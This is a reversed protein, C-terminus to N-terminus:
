NIPPVEKGIFSTVQNTLTHITEIDTQQEKLADIAKVIEGDTKLLAELGKGDKLAIEEIRKNIDAVTSQSLEMEKRLQSIVAPGTERELEAIRHAAKSLTDVLRQCEDELQTFDYVQRTNRVRENEFVLSHVYRAFDSGESIRSDLEGQAIYVVESKDFVESSLVPKDFVDGSLTTFGTEFQPKASAIRKVFSNADSSTARIQFCNALLDTLATKGSGKGGTIVILGPNMPIKTATITLGSITVAEIRFETFTFTSRTMTPAQQAVLVRDDPECLLQKLGEFTPNAKVWTYRPDCAAADATCQHGKEGRKACPNGLEILTHADSGWIAPKLSGFEAVFKEPGDPYTPPKGLLFERTKANSTFVMQSAQLLQKRTAHDQGDWNMKSMSEDALVLIYQGEFRDSQRHLCEVIAEISIAAQNAGICLDSEGPLEPQEKRLKAGLEALNAPKLSKSSAQRYPDKEYVFKLESLFHDEIDAPSIQDSFLVHFNVRKAEKGVFVNLRFEINPIILQTNHLRGEKKYQLIKKYGEITFYDTIAVAALDLQELRTVYREWDPTGDALTPFQNNLISLPSHVHLDWKLWESGKEYM